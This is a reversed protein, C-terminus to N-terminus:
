RLNQCISKLQVNKHAAGLGNSMKGFGAGQLIISVNKQPKIFNSM